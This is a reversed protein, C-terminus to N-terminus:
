FTSSSLAEKHLLNFDKSVDSNTPVYHPEHPTKLGTKAKSHHHLTSSSSCLISQCLTTNLWKGLLQYNGVFAERTSKLLYGM